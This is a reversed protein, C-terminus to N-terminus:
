YNQFLNLVDNLLSARSTTMWKSHKDGIVALPGACSNIMSMARPIISGSWSLLDGRFFIRFSNSNRCYVMLRYRFQQHGVCLEIIKEYYRIIEMHHM